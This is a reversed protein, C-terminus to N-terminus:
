APVVVGQAPQRTIAFEVVVKSAAKGDITRKVGNATVTIPYIEAKNAAIDGGDFFGIYGNTGRPLLTRVDVGTKSTYFTIDSKPSDTAGPISSKFLSGLDPTDIQLAMVTWGALDNIEPTLDTGATLEARTPTLNSAAISPIYYVKTVAQDTFRTSSTLAPTPM